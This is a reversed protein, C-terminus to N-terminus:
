YNSIRNLLEDFLDDVMKQSPLYMSVSGHPPKSNAGWCKLTKRNVPITAGVCDPYNNDTAIRFGPIKSKVNPYNALDGNLDMAAILAVLPDWLYYEKNAIISQISDAHMIEYYLRLMKNDPYKMRVAVLKQNYTSTVPFYQTTDLPIVIVHNALSSSFVSDLKYFVEDAAVPDAFTNWEALTNNIYYPHSNKSLNGTRYYAGGMIYIKGINQINKRSLQKLAKNINTLPGLTIINVPTPSNKIINAIANAAPQKSINANKYSYSNLAPINYGININNQWSIPFEHNPSYNVATNRNPSSFIPINQKRAIVTLDGIHKLGPDVQTEGSGVITIAKIDIDNRSLLYIIAVWDDNAADTDIIVPIKNRLAKNRKKTEKYATNCIGNGVQVKAQIIGICLSLTAILAYIHFNPQYKKIKKNWLINRGFECSKFTNLM